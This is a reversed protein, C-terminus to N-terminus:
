HPISATLCPVTFIDWFCSFDSHYFSFRHSVVVFTVFHFRVQFFGACNDHSSVLSIGLSAREKKELEILHANLGEPIDCALPMLNSRSPTADIEQTANAANVAGKDINSSKEVSERTADSGISTQPPNKACESDVKNEVTKILLKMEDPSSETSEKFSESLKALKMRNARVLPSDEEISIGPIVSRRRIYPMAPSKSSESIINPVEYSSTSTPAQSKDITVQITAQEKKRPKPSPVISVPQISIHHSTEVSVARRVVIECQSPMEKFLKVVEEQSLGSLQSGNVELVEDGEQIGSSGGSALEAAGGPLITKVYVRGTIDTDTRKEVSVGM